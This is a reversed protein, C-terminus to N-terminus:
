AGCALRDGVTQRVKWGTLMWPILGAVVGPAMAFFLSTGAAAAVKRM